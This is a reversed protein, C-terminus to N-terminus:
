VSGSAVWGRRLAGWLYLIVGSGRRIHLEGVCSNELVRIM